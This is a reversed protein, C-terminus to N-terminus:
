SPAKRLQSTRSARSSDRAIRWPLFIGSGPCSSSTVPILVANNEERHFAGESVVPVDTPILGQGQSCPNRLVVRVSDNQIQLGVMRGLVAFLLTSVPRLM